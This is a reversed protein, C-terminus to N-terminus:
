PAIVLESIRGGVVVFQYRLDVVGGPFDGVLRNVVLWTDVNIVHTSVLSRTYTYESAVNTLWDRIADAGEFENGDDVVKADPAFASLAVDVDHRDHAEQYRRVVEPLDINTPEPQTTDNM